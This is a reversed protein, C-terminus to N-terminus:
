NRLVRIEDVIWQSVPDLAMVKAAVQEMTTGEALVAMKAGYSAQGMQLVLFIKFAFVALAFLLFPRVPLVRRHTRRRAIEMGDHNFSEISRSMRASTKYGMTAVVDM